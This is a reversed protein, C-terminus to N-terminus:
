LTKPRKKDINPTHTMRSVKMPAATANRGLVSANYIRTIAALDVKIARSIEYKTDAPNEQM